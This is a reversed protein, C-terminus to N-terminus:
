FAGDAFFVARPTKMLIKLDLWLSWTRAYRLDLRVMEDFSVKSRGKVQWLGTIGPQVELVRRRHWIDYEECEYPIPPRPGVLSMDGRLVNIFQPLEDLSTRRLIRGITTIRPDKTMKYFKGSEGESQGDHEGTIVRKIFEQHIKPDNNAYMSRFKLFTFPRGFRGLREQKYLIPGQSSLRVLLAVLLFVPSLLLLAGASGILDILRKVVRAFSQNESRHVLDPYLTPNGQTAEQNWDEPFIHLSISIQSFNRVSLTNRLTQSVRNMVTSLIEGRSDLSIETFMVGVVEQMKYWGTVDTERTARSLASLVQGLVKGTADSPLCNGTDLLMLLFPQRSRETRKREVAIMQRFSDEELINYEREVVADPPPLALSLSRSTGLVQMVKEM